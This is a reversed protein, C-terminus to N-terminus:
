KSIFFSLGVTHAGTSVLFYNQNSANYGYAITLQELKLGIMGEFTNNSQYGLQLWVKDAYITKLYGSFLNQTVPVNQYAVWPQITFRDNLKKKYFLAANMYSTLGQHTSLLDPLAISLDFDKFKMLTGTGTKFQITNFFNSYLLQDSTNLMDHNEMRSHNLNAHFVGVNLGFNLAIEEGLKLRYAYTLDTQFVQFAGRSDSYLRLGLAQKESISTYAGASINKQAFPVGNNQTRATLYAYVDGEEGTYASNSQFMNNLRFEYFNYSTLQANALGMSLFFVVFFILSKKM